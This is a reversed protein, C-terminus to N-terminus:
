DVRIDFRRTKRGHTLEKDQPSVAVAAWDRCGPEGPIVGVSEGDLMAGVISKWALLFQMLGPVLHNCLPPGSREFSGLAITVKGVDLPVVALVHPQM